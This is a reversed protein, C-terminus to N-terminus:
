WQSQCALEEAAEIDKANAKRIADKGANLADAMIKLCTNKEVTTLRAMSRSAKRARKAMSSIDDRLSM